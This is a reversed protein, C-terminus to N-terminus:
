ITSDAPLTPGGNFREWKDKNEWLFPLLSKFRLVSEATFSADDELILVWPMRNERAYAICNVNSRGCGVWGPDERIAPIRVPSIGLAECTQGIADWRDVREDLSIVLVEPFNM